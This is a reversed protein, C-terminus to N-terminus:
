AASVQLTLLGLLDISGCKSFDRMSKESKKITVVQAPVVVLYTNRSKHLCSKEHNATGYVVRGVM